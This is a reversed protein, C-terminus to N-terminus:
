KNDTEPRESSSGKRRQRMKRQIFDHTSEGPLPNKAEERKKTVQSPSVLEAIEKRLRDARAKRAAEDDSSM